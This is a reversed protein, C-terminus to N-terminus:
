DSGHNNLFMLEIKSTYFFCELWLPTNNDPINHQTIQYVNELMKSSHAAEMKLTISTYALCAPLSCPTVDWFVTNQMNAVFRM